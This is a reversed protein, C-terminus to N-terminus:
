KGSDWLFTELRSGCCCGFQTKQDFLFGKNELTQAALPCLKWRANKDKEAHGTRSGQVQPSPQMGLKAYFFPIGAGTDGPIIHESGVVANDSDPQLTSTSHSGRLRGICAGRNKSM